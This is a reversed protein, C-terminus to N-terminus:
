ASYGLEGGQEDALRREITSVFDRFDFPKRIVQGLDSLREAEDDSIATLFLFPIDRYEQREQLSHVIQAGSEDPLMHDLVLLDPTTGEEVLARYLGEASDFGRAEYGVEALVAVVAARILPEDDVIWVSASM